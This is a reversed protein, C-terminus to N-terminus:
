YGKEKDVVNLLAEGAAFRRLNEVYLDEDRPWEGDSAGATHPTIVVNPMTWLPHGKPLPEPNTVDLGAGALRGSELAKTLASLDYLGGRSVAIFYSGKKMLEFQKAGMMGQSQRTLPASVFVVDALPLVTDLRDPPVVKSVAAQYPIEKPDVGIVTMGSAHARAAIQSGIGGVGIIVATKRWLEIPKYTATEYPSYSRTDWEQKPAEVIARKIQRTLVLLLGMAHDAIEPGQLIKCNTLVIPSKVFDDSFSLNEVGANERQVWRLKPAFPLMTPNFSGIFGDVDKLQENLRQRDGQILIIDPVAAQLRKVLEPGMKSMVLVRKNEAALEAASVLMVLALSLFRRYM